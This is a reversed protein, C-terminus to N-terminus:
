HHCFFRAADDQIHAALLTSLGAHTLRAANVWISHSYIIHLVQPFSDAHPLRSYPAICHPLLSTARADAREYYHAYGYERDFALGEVAQRRSGRLAIEYNDDFGLFQRWGLAVLQFYALHCYINQILRWACRVRFQTYARHLWCIIVVPLSFTIIHWILFFLSFTHQYKPLLHSSIDDQFISFGPM